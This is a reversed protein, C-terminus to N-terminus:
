FLILSAWMHNLTSTINWSLTQSNESGSCKFKNLTWVRNSQQQREQLASTRQVTCSAIWAQWPLQRIWFKPWQQRHSQLTRPSYLCVSTRRVWTSTSGNKYSLGFPNESPLYRSWFQTQTNDQLRGQWCWEKYWPHLCDLWWGPWQQTRVTSVLGSRPAIDLPRLMATLAFLTLAKLRLMELSLSKKTGTSWSKFLKIFPTIPMIRSQQLPLFTMRKQTGQILKRVDTSLPQPIGLVEQLATFAASFTCLLGKPRPSSAGLHCVYDAVVSETLCTFDCEREQLFESFKTMCRNYSEWTTKARCSTAQQAATTSWGHKVLRKEWLSELCIAEVPFKKSDGPSRSTKHLTRSASSAPHTKLRQNSPTNAVLTCRAVSACTTDWHSRGTKDKAVCSASSRFPPEVLQQDRELRSGHCGSGVYFPRPLSLQLGSPTCNRFQCVPGSPIPGVHCGVTSFHAPQTAVWASVVGQQSSRGPHKSDWQSSTGGFYCEQKRVMCPDPAYSNGDSRQLFQTPERMGSHVCQRFYSSNGQQECGTSQATDGVGGSARECQQSATSTSNDMHWWHQRPLKWPQDMRGLEHGICRHLDASSHQSPAATQWELKAFGSDVVAPRFPNRPRHLSPQELRHMSQHLPVCKQAAIKWPDSSSVFECMQWCHSGFDPSVGIVSSAGQAFAQAVRLDKKSASTAMTRQRRRFSSCIGCIHDHFYPYFWVEAWQPACGVRSINYLHADGPVKDCGTWDHLHLWWGMSHM